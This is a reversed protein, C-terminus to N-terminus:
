CGSSDAWPVRDYSEYGGTGPGRTAAGTPWEGALQSALVDGPFIRLEM